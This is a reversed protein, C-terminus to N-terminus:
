EGFPKSGLSEGCMVQLEQNALKKSTAQQDAIAGALALPQMFAIDLLTPLSAKLLPGIRQRDAETSDIRLWEQSLEM